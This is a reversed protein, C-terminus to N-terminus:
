SAPVYGIWSMRRWRPTQASPSQLRLLGRWSTQLSTPSTPPSLTSAGSSHRLARGTWRWLLLNVALRTAMSPKTRWGEGLKLLHVDDVTAQDCSGVHTCEAQPCTWCVGPAPKGPHPHPFQRICPALGARRMTRLISLVIRWVFRGHHSSNVWVLRQFNGQHIAQPCQQASGLARIIAYHYRTGIQGPGLRSEFECLQWVLQRNSVHLTQAVRQSPVQFGPRLPCGAPPPQLAPFLLAAGAVLPVPPVHPAQFYAMTARKLLFVALRRGRRESVDTMAGRESLCHDTANYCVCSYCISCRDTQGHRYM